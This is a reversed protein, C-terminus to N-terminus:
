IEDDFDSREPPTVGYALQMVQNALFPDVAPAMGQPNGEEDTGAIGPVIVPTGDAMAGTAQIIFQSAQANVLNLAAQEKADDMREEFIERLKQDPFGEGLAEVAGRKSQLGMAMKAQEENLQIIVDMPLPSPWKVTTQYTAPDNPDLEPYQDMKLPVSSLFPNFQLMQPEYFAATLIVLENVKELMATYQIKRQLDKQMAPLFQMHLATASTNSIPQSQGLANMPVGMMEHMAVKLLEMYGLPGQLNTSLELNQIKADKNGIAWVKRPGKELNSAKAGTIVTVPASNGTWYTNGNRRAFWIGSKVTPCWVKGSPNVDVVTESKKTSLIEITDTKYVDVAGDGRINDFSRTRGGRLMAVLMQFFDRREISNQSWAERSGSKIRAPSRVGDGDMVVKYLLEAQRYTLSTLFEPTPVKDPAIELLVETLDTGLYWSACGSETLSPRETFTQGQDRWYAGLRRIDQVFEPNQITSQSLVTVPRSSTGQLGYWGETIFWGITEVLEDDYKPQTPFHTPIGGGLIIRSGERLDQAAADGDTAESTRVIEREYRKNEPRGVRREALWRHNPTTLADVRNSWQVMPGDYDWVNLEDIPQWNFEDTVPDLALIEDGVALEDYRKWGKRTLAETDPDVCHYAIIDSIDTAKENFERNLGIIDGIESTGWPSSAVATNTCHVIPIVGLPNPRSDILDDNVYEEIWDDTLIETYTMIQRTGDPGTSWFKYKLKFRLFRSRDHPHFECFAHAPNIPLIRIKGPMAQGAATQYPPEYAVKVFVDGSVIGQQGIEWLVKKGDNDDNWARRLIHPVIASTAEPSSFHVGKGFSFNIHWDALAKM